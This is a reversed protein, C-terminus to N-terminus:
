VCAGIVKREEGRIEKRYFEAYQKKSVKCGIMNLLIVANRNAVKENHPQKPFKLNPGFFHCIEHALIFLMRKWSMAPSVYIIVQNRSSECSIGRSNYDLLLVYSAIIGRLRIYFQKYTM